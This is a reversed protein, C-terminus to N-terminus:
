HKGHGATEDEFVVPGVREQVDAIAPERRRENPLFESGQTGNTGCEPEVPWRIGFDDDALHSWIINPVKKYVRLVYYIIDGTM